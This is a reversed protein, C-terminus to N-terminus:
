TKMPIASPQQRQLITAHDRPTEIKPKALDDLLVQYKNLWDRYPHESALKTQNRTASSVDKKTDVLLMRGPKLRGKYAINEPPHRDRGSGALIVQEDKTICVRRVCDM